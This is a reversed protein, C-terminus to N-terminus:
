TTLSSLGLPLHLSIILGAADMRGLDPPRAPFSPIRFIRRSRDPFRGVNLTRAFPLRSYSCNPLEYFIISMLKTILSYIRNEIASIATNSSPETATSSLLLKRSVGQTLCSFRVSHKKRINGGTQRSTSIHGVDRLIYRAFHSIISGLIESFSLEFRV